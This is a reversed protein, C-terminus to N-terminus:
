SINLGTRLEIIGFQILGKRAINGNRQSFIVNKISIFNSLKNIKKVQKYATVLQRNIWTFKRISVKRDVVIVM